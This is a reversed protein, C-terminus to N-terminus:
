GKDVAGSYCQKDSDSQLDISLLYNEMFELLVMCVTRTSSSVAEEGHPYRRCEANKFVDRFPELEPRKTCWRCAETKSGIRGTSYYFITRSCWHVITIWMGIGVNKGAKASIIFTELDSLQEKLIEFNLPNYIKPNKGLLHVGHENILRLDMLSNQFSNITRWGKIGTGIYCGTFPFSLKKLFHKPYFTGELQHLLLKKGSRYRDHLEFLRFNASDDLNENTVVVYDLDGKGPQFDDLVYSGHIIIEFLNDGLLQILDQKFQDLTQLIRDPPNGSCPKCRASHFHSSVEM